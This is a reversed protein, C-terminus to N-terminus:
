SDRVIDPHFARFDSGAAFSGTWGHRIGTSERFNFLRSQMSWRSRDSSIHGSCHITLFDMLLLDGPNTTPATKEYRGILNSKESLVLSYAGTKEPHDPDRTKIPALGDLHSGVCIKIPGMEESVPVLPSWFVIGDLSRLQAPYEQHWDARFKEENPNDIRIGFGGGAVGSVDTSRIQSFISEHRTSSVLRIFAPIQKVADYVIGGLKRDHAILKSFGHDFDSPNEPHGLELGNSRGVLKILAGIKTQIPLIDKEIDYFKKILLFGKKQFVDVQNQNLIELM